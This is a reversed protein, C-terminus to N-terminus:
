GTVKDDGRIDVPEVGKSLRSASAPPSRTSAPDRRRHVSGRYVWYVKRAIGNMEIVAELASNGGGVVAITLDSFLPGDCTSCYVVGRGALEKEGPIGLRKKQVGSAVIM